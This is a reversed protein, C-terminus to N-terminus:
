RARSTTLCPSLAPRRQLLPGSPRADEAWSPGVLIITALTASAVGSVCKKINMTTRGALIRYRGSPESQRPCRSHWRPSILLYPAAPGERFASYPLVYGTARNRCPLNKAEPLRRAVGGLGDLVGYGCSLGTKKRSNYTDSPGPAPALM